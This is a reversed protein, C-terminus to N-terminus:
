MIGTVESKSLPVSHLRALRCYLQMIKNTSHIIPTTIEIAVTESVLLVYAAPM